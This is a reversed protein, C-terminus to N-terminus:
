NFCPGSTRVMRSAQPVALTSLTGLATVMGVMFRRRMAYEGRKEFKHARDHRQRDAVVAASALFKTPV